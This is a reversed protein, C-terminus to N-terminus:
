PSSNISLGMRSLLFRIVLIPHSFLYLTLRLYNVSQLAKHIPPSKQVAEEIWEGFPPPIRGPLDSLPFFAVGRTEPSLTPSGKLPTCEYVHTIKALRNIPTYHGILREIQVNFGTEEEIERLIASEPSEESEIGGGPLVWVPVDRRQILLVSQRDASFIVGIVSV